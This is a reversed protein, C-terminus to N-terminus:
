YFVCPPTLIFKGSMALDVDGVGRGGGRGASGGASLAWPVTMEVFNAAM